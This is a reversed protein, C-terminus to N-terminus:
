QLNSEGEVSEMTQDVACHFYLLDTCGSAKSEATESVPMGSGGHDKRKKRGWYRQLWCVCSGGITQLERDAERVADDLGTSHFRRNRQQGDEAPCVGHICQDLVRHLFQGGSGCTGPKQCTRKKEASLEADMRHRHSVSEGYMSISKGSVKSYDCLKGCAKRDCNRHQKGGSNECKFQEMDGKRICESAETDQHPGSDCFSEKCQAGSSSGTGATCAALFCYVCVDSASHVPIKKFNYNRRDLDQKGERKNERDQLIVPHKVPIKLRMM